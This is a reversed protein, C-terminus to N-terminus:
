NYQWHRINCDLNISDKKEPKESLSAVNTDAIQISGVTAPPMHVKTWM